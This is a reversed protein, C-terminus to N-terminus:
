SRARRVGFSAFGLGEFDAVPEWIGHSSVRLWSAAFCLLPIGSALPHHRLGERSRSKAVERSRSKAVERSRSKAAERSVRFTSSHDAM